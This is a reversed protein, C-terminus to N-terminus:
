DLWTVDGVVLTHSPLSGACPSLLHLTDTDVLVREVACFGAVGATVLDRARGSATYADVAIPHCVALLAHQLSEGLREIRQLQIADTTQQAGLPLLSASLAISSVKYVIIDSFSIQLLFPTLQPVLKSTTTSSSSSSIATTPGGGAGAGAGVGASSSSSSVGAASTSVGLVSTSSGTMLSNSSPPDVMDGYFYRKIARSRWQRQFALPRNVVGGSRPLKIIKPCDEMDKYDTTLMSYLRDHGMVLIVSIQLAKAAHLLLSYGDEQIWGNTNVVIGSAKANDDGDFRQNIKRALSDVQAKYLDMHLETCSGHWLVLPHVVTNSTSSTSANTTSGTTGGMLASSPPPLGTTAYTEVTIVSASMPAVALSGPVSISNDLPDLDVWLPTRGLKCAYAILTKCLTSKGSEPPGVVLVRPGNTNSQLADDRLAELQAHTNVYAVNCDTEDGVYSIELDSAQIDVVCGHWTFLAVKIGGQPFSYLKGLALECGWLECQGKQLVFNCINSSSVNAFFPVELRLEENPQLIHREGVPAPLDSTDIDISSTTHTSTALPTPTATTTSSTM